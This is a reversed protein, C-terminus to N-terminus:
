RSGPVDTLLRRLQQEIAGAATEGIALDLKIETGISRIHGVAIRVPRGEAVGLAYELGAIWLGVTPHLREGLVSPGIELAAVRPPMGDRQALVIGDVRGMERGNRDLVLKDLMDRVLDM